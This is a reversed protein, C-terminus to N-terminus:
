LTAAKISFSKGAFM